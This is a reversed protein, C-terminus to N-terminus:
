HLVKRIDFAELSKDLYEVEHINIIPKSFRDLDDFGLRPCMTSVVFDCDLASLIEDTLDDVLVLDTTYGREELLEMVKLAEELRRQGPKTSVLICVKKGERAGTIARIKLALKKLFIKKICETDELVGRDVDLLSVENFGYLLPPLCHFYGSSIVVVHDAKVYPMYCGTVITYPLSLSEAIYECYLRYPLSYMLLVNSHKELIERMKKIGLEVTNDDPMYYAYHSILLKNDIDYVCFHEDQELLRIKANKTFINFLNPTLVHGVHLVADVNEQKICTDCIGWCPRGSILIQANVHSRLKQALQQAACKWGIPFEILLTRVHEQAIKEIIKDFEPIILPREGINLQIMHM